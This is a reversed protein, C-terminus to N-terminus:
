PLAPLRKNLPAVPVRPDIMRQDFVFDDTAVVKWRRGHKDNLATAIEFFNWRTNGDVQYIGPAFGALSVLAAATDDLFSCAPLWKTSARIERHKEFYDIMHNSGPADGIQWGLRAVVASPNQSMVRQEAVRKDHGYGETADPISEITFPGRAKDTFVMVSSTFVLRIGLTRTIWALESAWETRGTALHFVVDPATQRVFKEMAAYDDIPVAQRNWAAPNELYRCLVRGVTGSAGTVISKM